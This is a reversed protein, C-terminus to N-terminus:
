CADSKEKLNCFMAFQEPTLHEQVFAMLDFSGSLGDIDPVVDDASEIGDVVVNNNVVLAMSKARFRAISSVVTSAEAAEAEGIVRIFGRYERWNDLEKWDVLVFGREGSRQWTEFRLLEEGSVVHGFKTDNGLCDAVSTPWQNGMVIVKGAKATRAQHEHSFVLTAGKSIFMDAMEQDVNLSHDSKAAFKNDYNAHLFVFMGPTVQPLLEHLKSTFAAQDCHHAIALVNNDIFAYGDGPRYGGVGIITVQEPYATQLAKCLFEFHSMRNGKASDDHNGAKLYLHKGKKLWQNSLINFASMLDATDISFDDLLDGDFLLKGSNSEAMCQRLSDMLYSRLEVQSQATTGTVRRVGCHTDNLVLLSM